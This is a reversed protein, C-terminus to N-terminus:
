PEWEPEESEGEITSDDPGDNSKETQSTDDWQADAGEAAAERAISVNPPSDTGGDEAQSGKVGRIIEQLHERDEPEDRNELFEEPNVDSDKSRRAM